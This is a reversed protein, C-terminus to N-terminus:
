RTEKRHLEILEAALRVQERRGRDAATLGGGDPYRTIGSDCRGATTVLGAVESILIRLVRDDHGGWRGTSRSRLWALPRILSLPRSWSASIIGTHDSAKLLRHDVAGVRASKGLEVALYQPHPDVFIHVAPYDDTGPRPQPLQGELASSVPNRRAPGVRGVRLLNFRHGCRGSRARLKGTTDAPQWWIRIRM